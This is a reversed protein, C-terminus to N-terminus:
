NELTIYNDLRWYDEFCKPCTGNENIWNPHSIKIVDMLWSELLRYNNELSTPTQENTKM